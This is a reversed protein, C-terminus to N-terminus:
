NTAYIVFSICTSLSSSTNIYIILALIIGSNAIMYMKNASIGKDALSGLWQSLVLGSLTVATMYVGIYMPPTQLFDVLFYSMLPSVFASVLGTLVSLSIFLSATSTKKM